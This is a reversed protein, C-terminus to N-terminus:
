ETEPLDALEKVIRHYYAFEDQTSKWNTRITRWEADSITYVPLESALQWLEAMYDAVNIQCREYRRRLIRANRYIDTITM